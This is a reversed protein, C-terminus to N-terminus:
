LLPSFLRAGSVLLRMRFPKKKLQDEKMEKANALDEHFAKAIKEIHSSNYLAAIVEFNLRFSRNDSNATGVIALTNDVALTKAHLITPGYEYIRVGAELLEPYYSKAAWAILPVDGSEPVLIHVDAGRLSATILSSMLSEDPVFYPTTLLVREQAAAISSFYLKHIADLNEDPGSAVIQVLDEGEELDTPLYEDGEPADETAYHWDEFFVLQLGRAAPGEIRAHTDRWAEDGSVESTHVDTVNMGGTYAIRGDVVAIKRHTRFNTMSLRFRTLTIANFRVVRGGAETLPKWFRDHAKSSGFGDVLVRVEIGEKAREALLDRLRTGITDTEWIYYELHIHHKANRIDEALAEYKEKGGFILRVSGLRPHAPRGAAGEALALLRTASPKVQHEVAKETVTRRRMAAHARARRKKRKEYRRPGFMLYVLIGVVPLFALAFIWAFTAQSSRRELIIYVASVAIWGVELVPLASWFLTELDVPPMM